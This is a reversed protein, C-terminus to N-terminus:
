TKSIVCTSTFTVLYIKKRMKSQKDNEAAKAKNIQQLYLGCATKIEKLSLGSITTEDSECYAVFM